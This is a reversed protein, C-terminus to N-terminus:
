GGTDETESTPQSSAVDRHHRVELTSPQDLYLVEAEAGAREVADVPDRYVAELAADVLRQETADLASSEGLALLEAIGLEAQQQDESVALEAAWRLHRMHEERQSRAELEQANKRGLRQGVLVGLFSLLPAGFSVCYVAWTPLTVM